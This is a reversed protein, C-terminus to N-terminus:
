DNKKVKITHKHEVKFLALQIKVEAEPLVKRLRRKTVESAVIWGTLAVLGVVIPGIIFVNYYWPEGGLKFPGVLLSGDENLRRRERGRHM